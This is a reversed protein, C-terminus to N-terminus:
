LIGPKRPLYTNPCAQSGLASLIRNERLRMSTPAAQTAPSAALKKHLDRFLYYSILGTTPRKAKPLCCCIRTLFIWELVLHGCREDCCSGRYSSFRRRGRKERQFKPYQADLFVATVPPQRRACTWSTHENARMSHPM